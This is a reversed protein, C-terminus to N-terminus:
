LVSKILAKRNLSKIDTYIKNIKDILDKIESDTSSANIYVVNSKMQLSATDGLILFIGEDNMQFRKTVISFADNVDLYKKNVILSQTIKESLENIVNSNYNLVRKLLYVTNKNNQGIMKEALRGLFPYIYMAETDDCKINFAESFYDLVEKDANAVASNMEENYCPECSVPLCSYKCADYLQPIERARLKTLYYKDNNEIALSVIDTRNTDDTKLQEELKNKNKVTEFFKNRGTFFTMGYPESNDNNVITIYNHETLYKILDYNKCELAYDLVTKGYEDANLFYKNDSNIHKEWYAKDNSYGLKYNSYRDTNVVKSKGASLLEECTVELLQTYYGLDDIQIGISGSKIQSLRTAENNIEDNEVPRGNKLVLYQKCFNRYSSFKDNQEDILNYIYKGIEENSATRFM